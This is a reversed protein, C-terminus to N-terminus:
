IRLSRKWKHSPSALDAKLFEGLDNGIFKATQMNMMVVPLNYAQVWLRIKGLDVEALSKDPPWHQIIIHSDRFTWSINFIKQTDVQNEFIFAM